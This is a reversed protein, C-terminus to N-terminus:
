ALLAAIEDGVAATLRELCGPALVAVSEQYIGKGYVDETPLYWCRSGNALTAVVVAVGPFRRRLELQLYQYHEGEVAVWVAGGTQWLTVPVPFSEGPPLSALRTLARTAREALARSRAAGEEDGAQRAAAEQEEWSRRDEELEAPIRRDPRYPLPVAFRRCRWLRLRVQEAEGLPEHAWTGLTAGSVVPGTYRFSTQPPPMALLAELAAHALQRGNRDAVTTDGVYGEHPGLDGSAGQVFVCLAKTEREVAERMAGVYDPSILTNQWALTTPHCAYNVVTAEVRGVSNTVRAVLVSDDAPGDPNHGCVYQGSEEDWFDRHAALRCCGTAYTITVPEVSNRAQAVAAAIQRALAELYRPILEGGPLHVRELGMLGAGHTHSFTVTLQEPALATLRCVEARLADMEPGWLLCLDLAVLIQEGEPGSSEPDRFVLATATLPRHIGTARDHAAAGWMRHYINAPPTVECRAIGFSCVSQPTHIERM